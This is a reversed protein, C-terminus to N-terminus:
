SIFSARLGFLDCGHEFDMELARPFFTPADVNNEVPEGEEDTPTEVTVEPQVVLMDGAAVATEQEPSILNPYV